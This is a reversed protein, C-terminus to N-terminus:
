PAATPPVTPAPTMRSDTSIAAPSAPEATIAVSATIEITTPITRIETNPKAPAIVGCVIAKASSIPTTANGPANRAL